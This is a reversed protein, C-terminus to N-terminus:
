ESKTKSIPVRRRLSSFFFEIFFILMAVILINRAQSFYYSLSQEAYLLTVFSSATIWIRVIYSGLNKTFASIASYLLAILIPYFFLGFFGFDIYGYTLLTVPSDVLSLGREANIKYDSCPRDSIFGNKDQFLLRPVAEVVASSICEGLKFEGHTHILDGLYAPLTGARQASSAVYNSGQRGSQDEHTMAYETLALASHNPGIVYAALRINYFLHMAYLIIWFLLIGSLIVKIAKKRVLWAKKFSSFARTTIWGPLFYAIFFIAALVSFILYRRGTITIAIITVMILISFIVLDRRQRPSNSYYVVLLSPMALLVLGAIAGLPSIRSSGQGHQVGMYGIDGRTFAIIILAYFLLLLFGIFNHCKKKDDMRRMFLSFRFLDNAILLTIASLIGFISGIIYNDQAGSSTQLFSIPWPSGHILQYGIM